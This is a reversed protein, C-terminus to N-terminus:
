GIRGIAGRMILVHFPMIVALYARGLRNHRRVWTAGYAHSGDTLISIRFDLHKDDFGLIIETDNRMVIPFFGITEGQGLDTRLGFPTVAINRMKMLWIVWAPFDMARKAAMEVDISTECRYCDLFDDPQIFTQLMSQSPLSTKIVRSM